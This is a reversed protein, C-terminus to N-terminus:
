LNYSLDKTPNLCMQFYSEHLGPQDGINEHLQAGHVQDEQRLRRHLILTCAGAMMGVTVMSRREPALLLHGPAKTCSLLASSLSRGPPLAHIGSLAM